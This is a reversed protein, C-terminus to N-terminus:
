NGNKKDGLTMYNICQPIDDYILCGHNKVNGIFNIAATTCEEGKYDISWNTHKDIDRRGLMDIESCEINQGRHLRSIIEREHEITNRQVNNNEETNSDSPNEDKDIVM